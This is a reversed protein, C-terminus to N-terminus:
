RKKWCMMVANWGLQHIPRRTGSTHVLAVLKARRGVMRIRVIRLVKEKTTINRWRREGKTVAEMSRLNLRHITGNPEIIIARRRLVVIMPWIMWTSSATGENRLMLHGMRVAVLRQYLLLLQMPINVSQQLIEIVNRQLMVLLQNIGQKCLECGKLTM